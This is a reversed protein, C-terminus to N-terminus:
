PDLPQVDLASLEEVANQYDQEAQELDRRAEQEEILAKRDPRGHRQTLEQVDRRKALMDLYHERLSRTVSAFYPVAAQAEKFTWPRLTGSDLRSKSLNM